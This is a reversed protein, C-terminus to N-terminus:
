FYFGFKIVPNSYPSYPNQTVDWLIFMSIGFSGGLSQSLGGGVLLNDIWLRDGFFYHYTSPNFFLPEVNILENEAHLVIDGLGLFGSGGTGRIITFSLIAKGGYTSTQLGYNKYKEFIYIPGLGATLRDTIRYGVLPALKIYTITGFSLGIDGGFVLRRSIPTKDKSGSSRVPEEVQASAVVSSLSIAFVLLSRRLIM